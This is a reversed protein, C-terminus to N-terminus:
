LICSVLLALTNMDWYWVMSTGGSSGSGSPRCSKERNLHFIARKLSEREGESLADHGAKAQLAQSAESFNPTPAGSPPYVDTNEPLSWARGTSSRDPLWKSTDDFFHQWVCLLHTFVPSCLGGGVLPLSGQPWSWLLAQCLWAARRVPWETGDPVSILLSM